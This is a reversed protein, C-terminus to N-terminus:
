DTQHVRCAFCGPRRTDYLMAHWSIASFRDRMRLRSDRPADGQGDSGSSCSFCGFISSAIGPKGIVWCLSSLSTITHFKFQTPNFSCCSIFYVVISSSSQLCQIHMIEFTATNSSVKSERRFHAFAHACFTHSGCLHVFNHVLIIIACSVLKRQSDTGAEVPHKNAPLM